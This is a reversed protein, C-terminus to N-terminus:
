LVLPFHHPLPSSLYRRDHGIEAARSRGVNERVRNVCAYRDQGRRDVDEHDVRLRPALVLWIRGLPSVSSRGQIENVRPSTAGLRKRPICFSTGM